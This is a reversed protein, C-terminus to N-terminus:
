AEEWGMIMKILGLLAITIIAEAIGIVAHVPLMASVTKSLEYTGSIGVEISCALAALVVSLWAAFAIALIPSIKTKLFAYIYYGLVSGILAMNLINAGIALLGGDAYFLSQVLLVASIALFGGWPGLLVAALVGGILHGSTGSAIPFNFMQAAFVLSSVMGMKVLYEQGFRSLTQRTKDSVTKITGGVGALAAQAAPHTVAEKVKSIAFALAGAAAIGMGGALRPDLFGDPIHM